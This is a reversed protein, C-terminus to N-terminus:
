RGEKGVDGSKTLEYMRRNAEASALNINVSGIANIAALYNGAQIQSEVSRLLMLASEADDNMRELYKM